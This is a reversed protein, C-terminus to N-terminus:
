PQRFVKPHAMQDKIGLCGAVVFVDPEARGSGFCGLFSVVVQRGRKFRIPYLEPRQFSPWRPPAFLTAADLM